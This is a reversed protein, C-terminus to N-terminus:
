CVGRYMSDIVDQVVQVGEPAGTDLKVIQWLVQFMSDGKSRAGTRTVKMQIKSIIQSM